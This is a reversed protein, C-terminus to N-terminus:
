YKCPEKEIRIKKLNISSNLKCRMLYQCKLSCSYHSPALHLLYKYRHDQGVSLQLEPMVLQLQVAHPSPSLQSPASSRMSNTLAKLPSRPRYARNRFYVLFYHLETMPKFLFIIRTTRKQECSYTISPPIGSYQRVKKMHYIKEICCQQTTITPPHPHNRSLSNATIGFFFHRKYGFIHLTKLSM